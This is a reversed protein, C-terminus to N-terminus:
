MLLKKLTILLFLIVPLFDALKQRLIRLAKGMQGEVTKVSIGLEEAIMRYKRDEFRSMQFITRCQEPLAALAQDIKQQLEKLVASDQAHQGESSSRTIHTHYAAKVKNHKLYNLCEYYVAKYLYGKISQRIDVNDKKEWLKMFVHQVMEEATAEDKLISMAYGHLDKFHEKFMSEFIVSSGADARQIGTTDNDM